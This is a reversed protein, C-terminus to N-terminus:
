VVLVDDFVDLDYFGVGVGYLGVWLFHDVLGDIFDFDDVLLLRFEFFV